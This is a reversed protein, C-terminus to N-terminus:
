PADVPDCAGAITCDCPTDDGCTHVVEGTDLFIGIQNVVSAHRRTTGHTGNDVGSLENTEPPLPTPHEDWIVLASPLPGAQEEVGYPVTVAPELVPLGMTRAQSLTALNSVQSDGVSMHMLIQKDPTGPMAGALFTPALHYNETPDFSMQMLQQGIVKNLPGPYAGGVIAGYDQWHSSREFLISWPGGGVAFVGQEIFPDYALFTSGLVHGQSIGYFYVRSPDVLTGMQDAILDTAMAGRVLHELTFQNVMGQIVNEGWDILNSMDNLAYAVNGV